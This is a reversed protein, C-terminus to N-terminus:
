FQAAECVSAILARRPELLGTVLPNADLQQRATLAEAFKIFILTPVRQLVAEVSPKGTGPLQNLIQEVYDRMPRGQGTVADPQETNLPWYWPGALLRQTANHLALRLEVAEPTAQGPAVGELAVLAEHGIWCIGKWYDFKDPSDGWLFPLWQFCQYDADQNITSHGSFRSKVNHVVARAGEACVECTVDADQSHVVGDRNSFGRQGAAGLPRWRMFRGVFETSSKLMPLRFPLTFLVWVARLLSTLIPVFDLGGVYNKVAWCKRPTGLGVNEHWPFRRDLVCGTFIVRGLSM